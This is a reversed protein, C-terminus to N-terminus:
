VEVYVGVYSGGENDEEGGGKENRVQRIRQWDDPAVGALVELEAREVGVQNSCMLRPTVRSPSSLEAVLASPLCSHQLRLRCYIWGDVAGPGDGALRVHAPVASDAGHGANAGREVGDNYTSPSHLLDSASPM